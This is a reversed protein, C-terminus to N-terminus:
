YLSHIPSFLMRWDIIDIEFLPKSKVQSFLQNKLHDSQLIGNYHISTELPNVEQLKYNNLILSFKNMLMKIYSRVHTDIHLEDLIDIDKEFTKKELLFADNLQNIIHESCIYLGDHNLFQKLKLSWILLQLRFLLPHTILPSSNSELEPIPRGLQDSYFAKVEKNKKSKNTPSISVSSISPTREFEVEKERLDKQQQTLWRNLELIDSIVGYCLDDNSERDSLIQSINYGIYIFKLPIKLHSNNSALSIIKSTISIPSLKRLTDYFFDENEVGESSSLESNDISTILNCADHQISSTWLLSYLVWSDNFSPNLNITLRTFKLSYTLSFHETPSLHLLSLIWAPKYNAPDLLISIISFKIAEKVLESVSYGQNEFHFSTVTEEVQENGDIISQYTIYLVYGTVGCLTSLEWHENSEFFTSIPLDEIRTNELQDYLESLQINRISSFFEMYNKQWWVMLDLYSKDIKWLNRMLNRIKFLVVVISEEKDSLGTFYSSCEFNNTISLLQHNFSRNTSEILRKRVLYCDKQISNPFEVLYDFLQDSLLKNNQLLALDFLFIICEKTGPSGLLEHIVKIPFSKISQERGYENEEVIGGCMEQIFLLFLRTTFVLLRFNQRYIREMEERKQSIKKSKESSTCLEILESYTAIVKKFIKNIAPIVMQQLIELDKNSRKFEENELYTMGFWELFLQVVKDYDEELM